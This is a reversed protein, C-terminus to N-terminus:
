GGMSFTMAQKGKLLNNGSYRTVNLGHMFLNEVQAPLVGGEASVLTDIGEGALEIIQDVDRYTDDGQGGYAIDFGGNGILYNNGINGRLVNDLANGYANINLFGTLTLNEVNAPLPLPSRSALITDTGANAAETISDLEHDVIFTDDWPTGVVANQTGVQVRALIDAPTWVAGAGGDFEIREVQRDETSFYGSILIQTNSGDLAVLLDDGGGTAVYLRHLTVHQPLVGTGLRLVDLTSGSTNPIENVEDFGDGRSFLYVDNGKGGFLRDNGAGGNLVDNGADNNAASSDDLWIGYGFLKDNGAGGLLTDNGLGGQLDDEGAGGQLTDDGAKGNIGDDGGLGDIVDVGAYGNLWDAKETAVLLRTQIDAYTWTTGNAFEIRDIRKSDDASEFYGKIHVHELKPTGTTNMRELRLSDEVRGSYDWEYWRVLKVEGPLIGESFRLVDISGGTEIIIDEGDGAAFLYVDNGAGGQLTDYSRHGALTDNGSGGNLIDAGAGGYARGGSNDLTLYLPTALTTGVLTELDLVDGNAFQLTANMGFPANQLTLTQGNDLAVKLTTSNAMSLTNGTALGNASALQITNNGETDDIVDESRVNLYIDDGAGGQLTDIDLDAGGDLTDNGAQGFLFDIGAGGLLTDNGGGGALQDGGDGGDLYDAGDGAALPANPSDGWLFDNGTGGMLIDDQQEGYLEDNDAGGLLIDQGDGGALIDNQTGGDLVDNGIHGFLRDAGADGDLYDAGANGILADDGAEGFLFVGETNTVPVIFHEWSGTPSKGAPALTAHTYTIAWVSGGFNMNFNWGGGLASAGGYPALPVFGHQLDLNGLSNYILNISSGFGSRADAWIIDANLGPINGINAFQFGEALAANILDNGDGGYAQSNSEIGSIYDNGLGGELTDAGGDGEIWDAGDGGILHDALASGLIMDAGALGEVRQGGTAALYNSTATGTLTSPPTPSAPLASGTGLVIGLESASWGKVEVTNGSLNKILLTQSGGTLTFLGYTIGNQQDQWVNSGFQKWKTTLVGTSGKAEVLGFKIVGSGDSDLVTDYGDGADLIYTDFGAGGILTDNNKGGKLTDNGANGLLLDAELGGVMWDAGTGGIMFTKKVDATASMSVSGAQVFWDIAAPLLQVAILREELTLTDLYYQFYPMWGKAGALTASVDTRDFRIGGSVSTFLTKGVVAAKPNEYYMQMAFIVLTNTIDKNTLTFGGTQTVKQLDLTFRALMADAPIAATTATAGVGTQHRVLHEIFNVDSTSTAHAYLAEDFVMKLLEPLKFTSLRFDNNLLFASLLAQSHLSIPGSTLGLGTSNQTLMQQAGLASFPLSQLVEGQVFYGTVNATRTGYGGYSLLEPAM